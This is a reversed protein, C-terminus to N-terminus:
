VGRVGRKKGRRSKAVAAVDPSVICATGGSRILADGLYNLGASLAADFVGEVTAGPFSERVAMVTRVFKIGVEETFGERLIKEIEAEIAEAKDWDADSLSRFFQDNTPEKM